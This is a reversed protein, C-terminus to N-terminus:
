GPSHKIQKLHHKLHEVYDEMFWDLTVTDGEGITRFAIEHFNHTARPRKRTQEPIREMIRALHMNFQGWLALLDEWSHSDYQQAKVWEDQEYGPFVMADQLTARVFRDHNNSASDILHGIIEKPSWKGPAPHHSADGDTMRRLEPLADQIELRLNVGPDDM